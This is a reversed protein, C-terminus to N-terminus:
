KAAIASAPDPRTRQPGYQLGLPAMRVLLDEFAAATAVPEGKVGLDICAGYTPDDVSPLSFVKVGPHAAEIAEMIPTLRAEGTGHIIISREQYPQAGLRAAERQLAWEIMPWAMVPFGPTFYVTGGAAGRCFFGPIQNYANPIIGAGQPFEGMRLRQRQESSDPDWPKGQKQAVSQMRANILRRAEAHMVLPLGLAEAACQRTHDDPTAGIGGTCFVVDGSDFARRLTPVIRGPEDGIYEAWALALHRQGLLELVKPLHQDTRRGSLIEDGIIILGIAPRASETTM